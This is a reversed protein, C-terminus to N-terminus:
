PAVNVVEGQSVRAYSVTHVVSGAADKLEVTDGRNNLSMAGGARDAATEGSSFLQDVRSIATQV